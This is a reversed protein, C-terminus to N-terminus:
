DAIAPYIMACIGTPGFSEAVKIQYHNDKLWQIAENDITLAGEISVSGCTLGNEVSKKATELVKVSIETM